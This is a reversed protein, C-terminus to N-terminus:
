KSELIDTKSKHLLDNLERTYGELEKLSLYFYEYALKMDEKSTEEDNLVPMLGLLTTLPRRIKHSVDFLMGELTKVYHEQDKEAKKRESIDQITGYVRTVEGNENLKVETKSIVWIEKGKSNIRYELITSKHKILLTEIMQNVAPLDEPHILSEWTIRDSVSSPKKDSSLLKYIQPSWSVEETLMNWEWSGIRAIDQAEELREIMLELAINTSQIIKKQHLNEKRMELLKMIRKALIQLMRREVDNFERPQCDIVCLAGLSVGEDTVLPAGAYFRIHPDGLTLPNNKFRDDNLSDNIVMVQEPDQAAYRCFSQEIPTQDTGLGVQAKFWQRDLDLLSIASIPTGCIASALEVIDDFEKEPLSDLIEYEALVNARDKESM